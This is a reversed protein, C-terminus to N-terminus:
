SSTIEQYPGLLDIDGPDIRVHRFAHSIDIKFINAGPGLNNLHHVITDVSPYHLQFDTGLYTSKPVGDNVSAGKPWSLDIITRRLQSGSEERTMFPSFHLPIPPEQFPGMIAKHKLEEQLYQDVHDLYALASARNKFTSALSVKRDFDRPFGFEILDPLQQDFYDSLYSRWTAVNLNTDM